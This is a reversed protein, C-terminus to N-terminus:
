LTFVRDAGSDIAEVVSAASILSGAPTDPNFYVLPSINEIGEDIGIWFGAFGGTISPWTIDDCDLTGENPQDATVGTLVVSAKVESGLDSVFKHAVSFVYTNKMLYATATGLALLADLMLKKSHKTLSAAM